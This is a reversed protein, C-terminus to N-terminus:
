HGQGGKAREAELELNRIRTKMHYMENEKEDLKVKFEQQLAKKEKSFDIKMTKVQERLKELGDGPM